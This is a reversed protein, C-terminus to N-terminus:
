MAWRPKSSRSADATQQASATPKNYFGSPHDPRSRMEALIRTQREVIAGREAERALLVAAEAAAQPESKAVSGFARMATEKAIAEHAESARQEESPGLEALLAAAEDCTLSDVLADLDGDEDEASKSLGVPGQSELAALCRELLNRDRDDM